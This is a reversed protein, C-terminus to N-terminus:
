KQKNKDAKHTKRWSLYMLGYAAPVMLLLLLAMISTIILPNIISLAGTLITGIGIAIIFASFLIMIKANKQGTEEREKDPMTTLFKPQWLQANFDRARVKGIAVPM